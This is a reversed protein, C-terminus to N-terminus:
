KKQKPNKHAEIGSARAFMEGLSKLTSTLNAQEKHHHKGVLKIANGILRKAENGTLKDKAAKKSM